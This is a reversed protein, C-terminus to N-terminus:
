SNNKFENIIVSFLKRTRNDLSYTMALYGVISITVFGLLIPLFVFINEDYMLFKETLFYISGFVIVSSILYKIIKETEFHVSFNKKVLLLLYLSSPINTILAIISWYLVLQLQTSTNNVIFLIIALIGLYILNKLILISPVFFLKSKIYNKFSSKEKDVNEDGTLFLQSIFSISSFLTFLSTFLVVIYAEEYIPNLAFLAPRAFAISLATLPFVFYFFLTINQTLYNEKEEGLLKPYVAKSISTAQAIMNPIALAAMWFALGVVTGTVLSFVAVDFTVLLSYLGPYLTPLWFLGLWKKFYHIKIKNKILNRAYIALVLISAFNAIVSAFIIGLVGMELFSVFILSFPIQIVGYALLGYNVVHPKYGFNIAMLTRNLFILPILAVAFILISYDADTNQALIIALIVYMIMGGVSFISSSFIATKGVPNNRAIERTAWYSVIPELILVYFFINTILGWTGYEIPTLSRTLILTFVM